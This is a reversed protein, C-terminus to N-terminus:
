QKEGIEPRRTQRILVKIIPEDNENTSCVVKDVYSPCPNKYTVPTPKVEQPAIYAPCLM